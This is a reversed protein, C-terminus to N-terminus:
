IMSPTKYSPLLEASFMVPPPEAEAPNVSDTAPEAGPGYM